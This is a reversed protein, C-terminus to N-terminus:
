VDLLKSLLFDTSADYFLFDDVRGSRQAEIAASVSPEDMEPCLLMLRCGPADGRLRCCIDLCYDADYEGTEAVEIFAIDASYVVAADAAKTYDSEYFVQVGSTKRLNIILGQAVPQRLMALVITLM